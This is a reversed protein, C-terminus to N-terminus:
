VIKKSVEEKVKKILLFAKEIGEQLEKEDM